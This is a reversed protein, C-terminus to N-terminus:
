GKEEDGMDENEEEERERGSMKKEDEEEEEEDEKEEREKNRKCSKKREINVVIRTFNQPDRNRPDSRRKYRVFM